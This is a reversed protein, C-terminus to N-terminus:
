NQGYQILNIGFEKAIKFTDVSKHYEEQFVVNKIGYSAILPLCNVCPSFTIYLTEVEGPKVYRLCNAEAHIVRKLKEDRDNWNISVGKPAGNYGISAISNDARLACAGVKTKPDESRLSAVNALLLGYEDWTLRRNQGRCQFIIKAAKKIVSLYSNM